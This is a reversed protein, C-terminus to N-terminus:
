LREFGRIREWDTVAKEFAEREIKAANLYHRHVDDGFARPPPPARGRGGGGGGGGPPPGGGGRPASPP